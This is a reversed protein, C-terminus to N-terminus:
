PLYAGNRSLEARLLDPNVQRVDRDNTVAMAAAIGAAEGTNLCCAMIRLSGNVTRDSSISRGAVLVNRLGQPTLCRYPVGFSDGPARKRTIKRNREQLEPITMNVLERRETASLTKHVDIGYANRCIEDPFFRNECYDDLTLRYDGMIRRTERVGMLPATAVLVAEAFAPHYEAFADRYQAAM